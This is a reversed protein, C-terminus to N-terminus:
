HQIFMDAPQNLNALYFNRIQNIGVRRARLNYLLIMTKCIIRREGQTEYVFKDHIRPFSSQIGGMGWGATQRMSTAQRM